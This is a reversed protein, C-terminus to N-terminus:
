RYIRTSSTSYILNKTKDYYDLPFTIILPSNEYNTYVKQRLVQAQDLYVYTNADIQSPLIGVKSFPYDPDHMFARNFNAARVDSGKPVHAKIWRFAQIDADSSYYLGYYLGRNNMSLSPGVGGLLQAFVGSFTLFLLVIGATVITTRLWQWLYSGGWVLLLMIPLILFILVQHFARLVGYNLSLIPLIVLITLLVIGAVSLCVFDAVHADLKKRLLRYAAYLVGVLALVQLVRAFNQRLSTIFTPNLGANLASEGLPTLPLDDNTLQPTYETADVSPTTSNSRSNDLYSEYLDVQTKGGAFLLAASTDTSKDNSFLTPINALSKQLMLVLGSSTATIQSYWIFTMLFLIGAFLPTMITRTEPLESTRRQLWVFCLKCVVAGGFLAVFVYATSYHSLIVGLSCLLFLLKYHKKQIKSTMMLLVLAFFFYAVSQRTLMASDNIFTPYCIFLLSGTFAGLRSIFQRLLLYIAVPCAAFIIQLLVKFVFLGSVDLLRVFMEPLITISLCANYPNHDLRIDWHAYMDTLTFVRFEREIDHGVIDWGRLSTMLLVSMGLIFILWALLGDPLRQRLLIAYAILGAAYCLALIAIAADGGNNLRFAGFVALCPLLFSLGLLLMSPRSFVERPWPKLSIANKNTIIAATILLTMISDWVSLAGLLELPREIGVLYLLQNALLGSLMLVLISLGFSYLMGAPFTRFTIRLARLITIGPLFVLCLFLFLKFPWWGITHVLGVLGNTVMLWGILGFAVQRTSGEWLKKM